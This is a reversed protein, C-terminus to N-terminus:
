SSREKQMRAAKRLFFGGLLMVTLGGAIFAGLLIMMWRADEQSADFRRGGIDVGPQLLIPMMDWLLLAFGLMVLLGLVILFWAAVRKPAPGQVYEQRASELGNFHDLVAQARGLAAQPLPLVMRPWTTTKAAIRLQLDVCLPPGASISARDVRDAGCLRFISGDVLFARKGVLVEVGTKPIHGRPWDVKPHDVSEYWDLFQRWTPGDVRWRALLDQGRRLARQANADLHLVIAFILGFMISFFAYVMYGIQMDVSLTGQTRTWGFVCIFVGSGALALAVNRWSQPNRM